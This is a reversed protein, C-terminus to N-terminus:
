RPSAHRDACGDCGTGQARAIRPRLSRERWGSLRPYQKAWGDLRFLARLRLRAPMLKWACFLVAAIVIVAVLSLQLM